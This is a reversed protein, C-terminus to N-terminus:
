FIAPGHVVRARGGGPRALGQLRRLGQRVGQLDPLHRRGGRPADEAGGLLPLPEEHVGLLLPTQVDGQARRAAPLLRLHPGTRLLRWVRRVEERVGGPIQTGGQHEQGGGTCGGRCSGSCCRPGAAGLGGDELGQARPRSAAPHLWAVRRVM